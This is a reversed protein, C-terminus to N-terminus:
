SRRRCLGERRCMEKDCRKWDGDYRCDFELADVKIEQPQGSDVVASASSQINYAPGCPCQHVFPANGRGCKPCQWGMNPATYYGPHCPTHCMTCVLGTNPCTTM